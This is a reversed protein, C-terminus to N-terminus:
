GDLKKKQFFIAFGQRCRLPDLRSHCGHFDLVSPRRSSLCGVLLPPQLGPPQLGGINGRVREVRLLNGQARLQQQQQQMVKTHGLLTRGDSGNRDNDKRSGCRSESQHLYEHPGSCM